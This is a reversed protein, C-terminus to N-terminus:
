IAKLLVKTAAIMQRADAAKATGLPKYRADPNWQAVASWEAFYPLKISGERGSLRLLIDLDHTKFSALGQFEKNSEPFGPWKLTTCIRAKLCVEVAYGAVYIAGDYRRASVLSEADKLRGRAIKRLEKRSIVQRQNRGDLSDLPVLVSFVM